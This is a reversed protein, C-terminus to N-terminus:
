TKPCDAKPLSITGNERIVRKTVILPLIAARLQAPRLKHKDRLKEELEDLSIIGKNEILIELIEQQISKM